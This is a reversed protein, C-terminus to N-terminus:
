RQKQLLLFQRNVCATLNRTDQGTKLCDLMSKARQAAVTKLEVFAEASHWAVHPTNMYNRVGAFLGNKVGNEPEHEHVDCAAGALHGTKLAEALARDDVLGGRSMNVFFCGKKMKAITKGDILHKTEASLPCHLTVCDSQALLQDLSECRRVGLGKEYGEPAYKDYFCVDFGFPKAREAVATGMRGLGVIGLM